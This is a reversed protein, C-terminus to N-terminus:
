RVKVEKLIVQDGELVTPQGHCSPCTYLVFDHGREIVKPRGNYGCLCAVKGQKETVLVQWNTKEHLHKQLHKPPIKALEGVEVYIEYVNGHKQAENIIASTFAEEHMACLSSPAKIIKEIRFSYLNRM